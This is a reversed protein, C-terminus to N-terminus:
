SKNETVRIAGRATSLKLAPQADRQSKLLPVPLGPGLANELFVPLLGAYAMNFLCTSLPEALLPVSPFSVRHPLEAEGHLRGWLVQPGVDMM